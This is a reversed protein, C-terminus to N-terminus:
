RGREDMFKLQTEVVSLRRRTEAMHDGIAHLRKMEELM